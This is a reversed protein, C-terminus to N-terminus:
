VFLDIEARSADDAIVSGFVGNFNKIAFDFDNM